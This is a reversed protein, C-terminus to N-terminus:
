PKYDPKWKVISKSIAGCYCNITENIKRVKNCNHCIAHHSEGDVWYLLRKNFEIGKEGCSGFGVNDDSFIHRNVCCMEGYCKVLCKYKSREIQNEWDKRKIKEKEYYYDKSKKNYDDNIENYYNGKINHKYSSFSDINDYFKLKAFYKNIEMEAVEFKLKELKKKEVEIEVNIARKILIEYIPKFINPDAKFDKQEIM